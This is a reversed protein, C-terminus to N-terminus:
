MGQSTEMIRSTIMDRLNNDIIGTMRKSSDLKDHVYSEIDKGSAEVITQAHSGLLDEVDPPYPRSTVLLRVRSAMLDKLLEIIPGRNTDEDCEDLADFVIFIRDGADNCLSIFASKLETWSPLDHVTTLRSQMAQLASPIRSYAALLQHLLTQLIKIPTQESQQQYDFYFSLIKHDKESLLQEM